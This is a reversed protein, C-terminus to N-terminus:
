TVNKPLYKTVQTCALHSFQLPAGKVSRLKAYFRPLKNQDTRRTTICIEKHLNSSRIFWARRSLAPLVKNQFVQIGKSKSTWWGHTRLLVIKSGWMRCTAGSQDGTEELLAQRWKVRKMWPGTWGNRRRIGEFWQRKGPPEEFYVRGVRQEGWTSKWSISLSWRERLGKFHTLFM